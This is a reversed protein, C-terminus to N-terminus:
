EMASDDYCLTKKERLFLSNKSMLHSVVRDTQTLSLVFNATYEICSSPYKNKKERPIVGFLARIM